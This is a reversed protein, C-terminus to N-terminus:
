LSPYHHITGCCRICHWERSSPPECRSFAFGFQHQRLLPKRFGIRLQPPWNQWTYVLTSVMSNTNFPRPLALKSHGTYSGSRFITVHRWNNPQRAILWPPSPRWSPWPWSSSTSFVPNTLESLHVRDSQYAQVQPV